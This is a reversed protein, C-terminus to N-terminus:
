AARARMAPGGWRARNSSNKIEGVIEDYASHIMPLRPDNQIYLEAALISGLLYADPYQTLLWNTANLSMPPIAAYYLIVADAVAPTPSFRFSGGAM